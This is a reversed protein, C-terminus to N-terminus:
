GIGSNFVTMLYLIRLRTQQMGLAGKSKLVLGTLFPNQLALGIKLTRTLIIKKYLEEGKSIILSSIGGGGGM